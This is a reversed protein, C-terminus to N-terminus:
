GIFGERKYYKEYLAQLKDLEPHEHIWMGTDPHFSEEFFKDMLENGTKKSLDIKRSLEDYDSDSMIPDNAYEYAWAAIAIRIRNKIEENVM